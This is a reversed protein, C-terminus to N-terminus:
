DEPSLEEFINNSFAHSGSEDWISYCAGILRSFLLTFREIIFFIVFVIIGCVYIVTHVQNFRNEDAGLLEIFGKSFFDIYTKAWEVKSLDQNEYTFIEPNSLMYLGFGLHLLLAFQMVEIVRTALTRGYRRPLRYHRLFLTKDAWYMIIMQACGSLYLMPIAASYTLMIFLGAIMMSYRNELQFEPGLYQQEYEHQILHNTKRMDFSCGRDLCRGCGAKLWFLLNGIPNIADFISVTFISVGVITYWESYFDDLEGKLLPVNEPLDLEEDLLSNEPFKSNLLLILIGVNLFQVVWMKSLASKLRDTESHKGEFHSLERLFVRLCANLGSISISLGFLVARNVSNEWLWDECPKEGGEFEIDKVAYYQTKAEQYCYCDM